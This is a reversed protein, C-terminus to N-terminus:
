AWCPHLWIPSLGSVDQDPIIRSLSVQIETQSDLDPLMYHYGTHLTIYDKPDYDCLQDNKLDYVKDLFGFLTEKQDFELDPKQFKEALNYSIIKWKNPLREIKEPGGL